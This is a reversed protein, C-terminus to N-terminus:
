QSRLAQEFARVEHRLEKLEAITLSDGPGALALFRGDGSFGLPSADRFELWDQGALEERLVTVAMKLPEFEGASAVLGLSSIVGPPHPYQQQPGSEDLPYALWASDHAVWVRNDGAPLRATLVNVEKERPFNRKWIRKRAAVDWVEVRSNQPPRRPGVWLYYRGDASVASDYFSVEGPVAPRLISRRVTPDQGPGFERIVTNRCRPATLLHLTCAAGPGSTPQVLSLGLFHKWSSADRTLQGLALEQRILLFRGEKYVMREFGDPLLWKGLFTHNKVDRLRVISEPGGSAYGVLQGDGSIAVAGNAASYYREHPPALFRDLLRGAVVDWVRVEFYPDLSVLHRHDRSWAVQTLGNRHGRLQRLARPVLLRCFAVGGGNGAALHKGDPSFTGPAYSGTLVQEWNRVDWMRMSGTRSAALLWQGEPTFQVTKIDTTETSDELSLEGKEVRWVRVLGDAMGTALFRGDPPSWALALVASGGVRSHDVRKVKQLARSPAGAGQRFLRVRGTEDGVALRTGSPDFRAATLPAALCEGVQWARGPQPSFDALSWARVQGDARAAWLTQGERDFLVALTRPSGAPELEVRLRLTTGDYLQLGGRPPAYALHSGEPSFALLVDPPRRDPNEPLELPGGRKWLLPGRATAVVLVDPDKPHLATRWAGWPSRQSAEVTRSDEVELDPVGLSLAYLSRIELDLRGTSPGEPLQKRARAAKELLKRTETRRGQHPIDLQRRAARLLEWAQLEARKEAEVRATELAARASQRYGWGVALSIVVLVLSLLIAVLGKHQRIL